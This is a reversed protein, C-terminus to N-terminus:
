FSHATQKLEQLRNRAGELCKYKQNKATNESSYGMKAAIDKLKLKTNYFLLLLERCRDGLGNMVKEALKADEEKEMALAVEQEELDNFAIEYDLMIAPKRKRLEDKWMYRAVCALYTNLQATLKFNADQAKRYFIILTEQFVDEADQSNGGNEKIIQRILPYHRYLAALAKANDGSRILNVITEDKM